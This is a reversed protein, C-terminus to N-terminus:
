ILISPYSQRFLFTKLERRFRPLTDSAVIDSPLSNWLRTGAVAFTRDWVTACQSQRVDLQHTLSSRLRRRSLMDSLRRLDAALYQPAMGNLSRYVITSRLSLAHSPSHGIDDDGVFTCLSCITTCFIKIQRHPVILFRWIKMMVTLSQSGLALNLLFSEFCNHDYNSSYRQMQAVKQLM